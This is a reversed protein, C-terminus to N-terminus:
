PVSAIWGESRREPVDAEFQVDAVQRLPTLKGSLSAIYLRDLAAPYPTAGGALRVVVDREDGDAERLVGAEVGAIGLRLTRDIELTPVGLLGAKERHITVRLDTRRLRVPNDIYRTGPTTQLVREV